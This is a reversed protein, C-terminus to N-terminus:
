TVGVGAIAELVAAHLLGNSVVVGRNEALATGQDFRLPRGHIDTVRGGAEAVILAGAAHDWVKEVYGPRTPMRLYLDAEGRAVLAYKAQSDLRRPPKTIGLRQAVEAAVDHASHASEFSECFQAQAPDSTASVQIRLPTGAEELPYAWAGEGQVAVFVVGRPSETAPTLPLNPCALAAVRVRGEVLLALAIAYQDGRLFGKTGDIPDLTWFRPRYTALNGRDIWACVTEATAEPALRQVEAVVRELLPAQAPERLATSDEEAMIPDDPFAAALRRCILAQSGFDAVTVPSRDRKELVDPGIAAQINQCLAAAERVAALAVDRERSM